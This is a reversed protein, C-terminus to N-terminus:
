AESLKKVLQEPPDFKLRVGDAEPVWLIQTGEKLGHNRLYTSPVAMTCTYKTIRRLKIIEVTDTM